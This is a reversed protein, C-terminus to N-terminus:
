GGGVFQVVELQANETVSTAAWDPRRVIARNLEVAVKEPDIELALLLTLLNKPRAVSRPEGNVVIGITETADSIM